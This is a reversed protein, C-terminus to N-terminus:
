DSRYVDCHGWGTNRTRRFLYTHPIWDVNRDLNGFLIAQDAVLAIGSINKEIEGSLLPTLALTVSFAIFLRVNRPVRQNSFGPMLM